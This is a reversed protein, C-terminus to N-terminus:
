CDHAIEAMGAYPLSELDLQQESAAKKGRKFASVDKGM